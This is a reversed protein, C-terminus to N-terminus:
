DELRTLLRPAAESQTDSQAAAAALRAPHIHTSLALTVIAGGGPRDAFDVSGGHDEVIRKVIALGLGTGEARTTMYPEVIKEREAPLGIGTDDVRVIQFGDTASLDLRIHHDAPGDREVKQEIAEVANKIINTMTQGLQRRDCLLPPLPAPCDMEFRIGSHAVEFLFLTQRCIEELSEEAFEPKPMRAFASFEDVMRRLDGVQRIITESLKLAVGADEGDGKGFRRKIREAALQIPTLPNKIEHAVRRGVDAWAARRQDSLQQTIDDFTIVHGFSDALIRVALTRSDKKREIQLQGEGEQTSVMVDLERSLASLSKGPANDGDVGLLSAASANLMRVKNQPDIAIVGASVGSFVAEILSRRRDLLKNAGVLERRQEDLRATMQNFALALEAVEDRTGMPPLRVSLDGDAIKQAAHVLATVPQILRDAVMLAFFIAAGVILLAVLFLAAHFQLQLTRSRDVLSNYDDLVATFRKTQALAASNDVRAAYLFLDKHGPIPTVAEMRDGTDRFVTQAKSLLTQAVEAPVWNEAPRNYPNVIALSQVGNRASIRLIAGESLERQFVQFGFSSAFDASEIPAIGLNYGIDSAMVETQKIITSQKEQYYNTALASANEFIGRAKQSYWFDVGFQFLLSAFIVLLLVPIAATASFVSVLRVHLGGEEGAGAKIARKRAFRRAGLVVLTIAPILNAVLLLAVLPPALLPQGIKGGALIFYSGTLTLLLTAVALREAAPRLRRLPPWEM